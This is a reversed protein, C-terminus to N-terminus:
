DRFAGHKRLRENLEDDSLSGGVRRAADAARDQANVIEKFSDEAQKVKVGFGGWKKAAFMLAVLLVVITGFIILGTSM